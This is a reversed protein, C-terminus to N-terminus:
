GPGHCPRYLETELEAVDRGSLFIKWTGQRLMARPRNTGHATYECLAEDTWGEEDGAILGALSHGDLPAAPDDAGAADIITATVDVLSVCRAVRRSADTRGPWRIQLPVRATQEYFCMKRWLGHEGLMEGHDSTHIVVTRDKLGTEDLTDLLRAIKDDLYTVPGYYAARARSVKEDSHGWFGFARRLREAAPPLDALHGPPLNPLDAHEPYYRSFYPEPVVFPFHPAILGVCLAFPRGASAAAGPEGRGTAYDWLYTIARDTAEDDAIIEPTTGPGTPIAPEPSSETPVGAQRGQAPVRPGAEFMGPWPETAEPIGDEWPFVPHVLQSHLDSALQRHFGHLQDPGILHMKGSLATDYGRRRLLYPWTVTDTSLPKRQGLGRM